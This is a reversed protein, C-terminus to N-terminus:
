WGLWGSGSSVGSGIGTAVLNREVEQLRGSCASRDGVGSLATNVLAGGMFLSLLPTISTIVVAFTHIARSTVVSTGIHAGVEGVQGRLADQNRVGLVTATLSVGAVEVLGCGHSGVRSAM